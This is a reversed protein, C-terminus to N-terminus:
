NCFFLKWLFHPCASSSASDSIPHTYGSLLLLKRIPFVDISVETVSLLYKMKQFESLFKNSNQAWSKYLFNFLYHLIMRWIFQIRQSYLSSLFIGVSFVIAWVQDYYLLSLKHLTFGVSSMVNRGLTSHLSWNGKEKGEERKKRRKRGRKSRGKCGGTKRPRKNRKYIYPSDPQTDLNLTDYIFYIIGNLIFCLQDSTSALYLIASIAM